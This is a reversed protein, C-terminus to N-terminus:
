YVKFLIKIELAISLLTYSLQSIKFLVGSNNYLM